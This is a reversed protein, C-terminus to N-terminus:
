AVFGVRRTKESGVEVYALSAVPVIYLRGGEDTLTLHTAGSEIADAVKKQVAGPAETSEFGLERPSNQIGIRVEM